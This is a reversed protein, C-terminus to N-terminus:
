SEKLDELKEKTWPEVATCSVITRLKNVRGRLVGANVGKREGVEGEIPEDGPLPRSQELRQCFHEFPHAHRPFEQKRLNHWGRTSAINREQGIRERLGRPTDELM